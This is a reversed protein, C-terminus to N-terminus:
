EPEPPVHLSWPCYMVVRIMFGILKANTTFKIILVFGPNNVNTVWCASDINSSSEAIILIWHWKNVVHCPSLLPMKYCVTVVTQGIDRAQRSFALFGNFTGIQRWGHPGHWMIVTQWDWAWWLCPAYLSGVFIGCQGFRFQFYVNIWIKFWKCATLM